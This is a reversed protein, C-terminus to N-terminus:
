ISDGRLSVPLKPTAGSHSCVFAAVENAWRGVEALPLGKLFGMAVTATFSDGAGIPDVVEVSAPPSHLYEGGSLLVAGEPGLTYAILKLGYREALSRLISEDDGSLGEMEAVVPLENENIKLASAQDLSARILDTTYFDQRLNIDFIRLCDERTAGLFARITDCSVSDRQALSGFCVADTQAAVARVPETLAIRDWAVPAHITYHPEGDLLEVDVTGTPLTENVELWAASLGKEEVQARAEAGLEDAGLSSVIVGRAGLAQAHVAFNAPAGGLVKGSPLLDWLLEGIGVITKPRNM